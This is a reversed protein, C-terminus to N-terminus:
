EDIEIREEISNQLTFEDVYEINVGMPLGRAPRTIKLSCNKLLDKIYYSTADGEVTSPIALILERAAAVRNSLTEFNLDEIGIGDLPSILGGLVHYVGRFGSKEIHFVDQQDKVICIIDCNRSPDNCIKCKDLDTMCGCVPDSKINEKLKKISDSLGEIYEMDSKVMSFALREATKKGIGPLKSLFKIAVMLSEPYNM